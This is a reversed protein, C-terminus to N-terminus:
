FDTICAAPMSGTLQSTTGDNPDTPPQYRM